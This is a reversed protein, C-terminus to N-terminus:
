KTQFNEFYSLQIAHRSNDLRYGAWRLGETVDTELDQFDSRKHGKLDMDTLDDNVIIADVQIITSEDLYALIEVREVTQRGEFTPHHIM